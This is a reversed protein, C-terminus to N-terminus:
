GKHKQISNVAMREVDGLNGSLNYLTLGHVRDKELFEAHYLTLLHKSTSKLSTEIEEAIEGVSMGKNKLLFRIIQLRKTNALAKFAKELKQM